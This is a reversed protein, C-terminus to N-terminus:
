KSRFKRLYYVSKHSSALRYKLPVIYYDLHENSAENYVTRANGSEVIVSYPVVSIWFLEIRFIPESFEGYDRYLLGIRKWQFNVFMTAILRGSESLPGVTRVLTRFLSKDSLDYSNASWSIQPLNLHATLHASTILVSTISLIFSHFVSRTSSDIYVHILSHFFSQLISYMFLPLSVLSPNSSLFSSVSHHNFLHNIFYSLSSHDFLYFM